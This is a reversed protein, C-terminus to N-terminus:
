LDTKVKIKYFYDVEDLSVVRNPLPKALMTTFIVRDNRRLVLGEERHHSDRQVAVLLYLVV